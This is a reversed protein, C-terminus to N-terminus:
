DSLSEQQPVQLNLGGEELDVVAREGDYRQKLQADWEPEVWMWSHICNWGGCYLKVDLGQGNGMREIQEMNFTRDICRICFPRSNVRIEGYYYGHSLGADRRVEDRGIRNYSSIVMRANTRAHQLPGKAAEFIEEALASRSVTGRAFQREIAEISGDLLEDRMSGMNETFETTLKQVAERREIAAFINPMTIGQDNYFAMTDSVISNVDSNVQDVLDADIFDASDRLAQKVIEDIDVTSLEENSFDGFSELIANTYAERFNEIPEYNDTGALVKQVAEELTQIDDFIPM